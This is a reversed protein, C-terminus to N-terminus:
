QREMTNPLDMGGAHKYGLIHMAVADGDGARKKVRELAEGESGERPTRCFPCLILNDDEAVAHICGM